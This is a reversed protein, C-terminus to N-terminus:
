CSGMVCTELNSCINGCAGCNENDRKIDTECGNSIDKDCDAFGKQCSLLKVAGNECKGNGNNVLVTVIEDVQGNCNNDVGDCREIAGPHIDPDQDNCDNAAVVGDKDVDKCDPQDPNKACSVGAGESTTFKSPPVEAEEKSPTQGDVAPSFTPTQGETPADNGPKDIQDCFAIEGLDLITDNYVQINKNKNVVKEDISYYLSYEGVPLREFLFQGDEGTFLMFQRGPVFIRMGEHGGQGCFNVRGKIGGYQAQSAAWGMTQGVVIGM